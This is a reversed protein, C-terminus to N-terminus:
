AGHPLELNQAPVLVMGSLKRTAAAPAILASGAASAWQTFRALDSM